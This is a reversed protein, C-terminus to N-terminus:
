PGLTSRLPAYSSELYAGVTHTLWVVAIVLVVAGILLRLIRLNM